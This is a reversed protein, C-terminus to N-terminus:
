AAEKVYKRPDAEFERKCEASCFYYTRGDYNTSEQATEPDIEMGCVPDKEM